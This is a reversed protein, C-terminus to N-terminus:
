SGNLKGLLFLYQYGCPVPILPERPIEIEQHFSLERDRNMILDPIMFNLELIEEQFHSDFPCSIGHRESASPQNSHECSWLM